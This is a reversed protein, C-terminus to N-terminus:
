HTLFPEVISLLKKLFDQGKCTKLDEKLSDLNINGVMPKIDITPLLIDKSDFTVFVKVKKVTEVNLVNFRVINNQITIHHRYDLNDLDKILRRIKYIVQSVEQLLKSLSNQGLYKTNLHLSNLQEMALCHGLNFWPEHDESLRSELQVGRIQHQNNEFIKYHVNLSITKNLFLFTGGNETISDFDVSWEHILKFYELKKKLEKLESEKSSVDITIDPQQHRTNELKISKAEIEQLEKEREVVAIEMDKLYKNKEELASQLQDLDQKNQSNNEEVAQTTNQLREIAEDIDTCAKDLHLCQQTIDAAHDLIVKVGNELEVSEKKIQEHYIKTTQIKLNKWQQKALQKCARTMRLVEKRIDSTELGERVTKFLDPENTDVEEKYRDVIDTEKSQQEEITKITSDLLQCQPVMTLRAELVEQFSEMDVKEKLVISARRTSGKDVTYISMKECFMDYTWPENPKTSTNTTNFISSNTRSSNNSSNTGTTINQDTCSKNGIDPLTFTTTPIENKTMECPMPEDSINLDNEKFMLSAGIQSKDEIAMSKDGRNDNLSVTQEVSASPSSDHSMSVEKNPLTQNVKALDACGRNQLSKEQESDKVDKSLSKDLVTLSPIKMNQVSPLENLTTEDVTKNKISSMFSQSLISQDTASSTNLFNLVPGQLEKENQAVVPAEKESDKRHLKMRTDVEVQTLDLNHLRRKLDANESRNPSYPQRVENLKSTQSKELVSDHTGLVKSLSLSDDLLDMGSLYAGPAKSSSTKRSSFTVNPAPKNIETKNENQKFIEGSDISPSQSQELFDIGSIDAEKEKSLSPLRNSKLKSTEVKGEKKLVQQKQPIKEMTAEKKPPNMEITAEKQPINEITAEKQSIKETTAEKQHNKEIITAEKQPVQGNIEEKPPLQEKMDISTRVNAGLLQQTSDKFSFELEDDLGQHLSFDFQPCRSVIGKDAVSSQSKSLDADNEKSEEASLSTSRRKAQSTQPQISSLSTQPHLQIINERESDKTDKESKPTKTQVVMNEINAGLLQQTTDKFTIDMDKDDDDDDFNQHLSFDFNPRSGVNEKDDFHFKEKSIGIPTKQAKVPSTGKQYISQQLELDAQEAASNEEIEAVTQDSAVCATLEMEAMPGSSFRRTIDGLSQRKTMTTATVVETTEMINERDCLSKTYDLCSTLDMTFEGNDADTEFNLVPGTSKVRPKEDQVLETPTPNLTTIFSLASATPSLKQAVMSTQHISVDGEYCSTMEMDVMDLRTSNLISKDNKKNEKSQIEGNLLSDLGSINGSIDETLTEDSDDKNSNGDPSQDWIRPSDKPFEKVICREAFSVRRSLRKCDVTEEKPVQEIVQDTPIEALCPRKMKLIGSSRRGDRKRSHGHSHDNESKNEM